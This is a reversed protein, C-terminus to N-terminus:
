IKRCVAGTNHKEVMLKGDLNLDNTIDFKFECKGM